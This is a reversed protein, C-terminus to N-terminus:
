SAKRLEFVLAADLVAQPLTTQFRFGDAKHPASLSSIKAFNAPVALLRLYSDMAENQILNGAEWRKVSALGLRARKAWDQQSLAYQERIARIEAPSLRGLYRCIAAHRLEEGAEDTVQTDCADCRIVPVRASLMVQDEGVGYPFSEIEYSLQAAENGCVPCVRTEAAPFSFISNKM